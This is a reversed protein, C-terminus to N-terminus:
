FYGHCIWELTGEENEVLYTLQDWMAYLKQEAAENVRNLVNIDNLDVEWHQLEDLYAQKIIEFTIPQMRPNQQQNPDIEDEDWDKFADNEKLYDKFRKM